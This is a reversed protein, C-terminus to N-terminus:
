EAMPKTIRVSNYLTYKKKIKLNKDVENLYLSCIVGHSNLTYLMIM